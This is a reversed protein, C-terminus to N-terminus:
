FSPTLRSAPLPAMLQQAPKAKNRRCQHCEREVEKVVERASLIWYKTILEGLIQSVGRTHNGKDHAAKVILRTVPHIRPLIVPNTTQWPLFEAQQLRTRARLLGDSDLGPNLSSLKSHSTLSLSKQHKVALIDDNFVDKQCAKIIDVESELLEDCSLEGYKRQQEEKRSNAIFRLVWARVRILREWKSFRAPQLRWEYDTTFVSEGTDPQKDASVKLEKPSSVATSSNVPWDSDAKQLFTPGDWWLSGISKCQIEEVSCGRSVLDAPNEATPVHRWQDPSTVQHIVSIRNAVSTKFQHSRGRVWWIVDMSDSWITADSIKIDLAQAANEALQTGLVAAMLELRPISMAHVPAVRSKATVLPVSVKESEYACRQYM